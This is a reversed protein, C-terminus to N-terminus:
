VPPLPSRPRGLRNRAARPIRAFICPSQNIPNWRLNPVDRTNRGKQPGLAVDVGERRAPSLRPPGLVAGALM